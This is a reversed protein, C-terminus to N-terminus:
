SDDDDSKNAVGLEGGGEFTSDGALQSVIHADHLTKKMKYIIDNHFDYNLYKTYKSFSMIQSDAGEMVQAIITSIQLRVVQLNIEQSALSRGIQTKVKMLYPVSPGGGRVFTSESTKTKNDESNFTEDDYTQTTEEEPEIMSMEHIHAGLFEEDALKLNPFFM